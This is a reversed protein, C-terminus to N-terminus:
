ITINNILLALTAQLEQKRHLWEETDPRLYSNRVDALLNAHEVSLRRIAWDAAKDKSAFKETVMTYWMRTLTLLVNREDGAFSKILAPLMDRTAQHIDKVPIMPLLHAINPGILPLANQRAQALVLTLEPDCLPEPIKGAKYDSRLWEGYIFECRAPYILPNLASSLFIIVELPRRGASDLPYHGSIEMLDSVLDRRIQPTMPQNIVVLLDIDSRPRLGGTVASGHLYVAVLSTMLRQEICLLTKNVELPIIVM